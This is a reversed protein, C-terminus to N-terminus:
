FRAQNLRFRQVIISPLGALGMVTQLIVELVMLIKVPQMKPKM